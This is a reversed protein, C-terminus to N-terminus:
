DEILELSAMLLRWPKDGATFVLESHELLGAVPIEQRITWSGAAIAHRQGNVLVASAADQGEVVLKLRARTAARLRDAPLDIRRRLQGHAGVTALIGHAFHQTVRITSNAAAKGTLTFVLTRASKPPVTLVGRWGDDDNIPLAEEVLELGKLDGRPFAGLARGAALRLGAPPEVRLPMADAVAADNYCVVTLTEGDQSAICWRTADGGRTEVLSGRLPKLLRFAFEDGGNHHSEHAARAVAKDPCVDILHIIDRLMYTLAGTAKPLPEGTISPSGITTPQEPDLLGGAETNWFRLRRGREDTFATAVEYSAAVLKTDGGYHHEHIADMLPLNADLLPVYLRHWAEWGENWMNFGWGAAVQVQPNGAKLATAFVRYMRNYWLVNQEGAWYHRQTPDYAVLKADLRYTAGRFEYTDGAKAANPARSAAVYDTVGTAVNVAQLGQKWRLHEVPEAQGKIRVPDGPKVGDSEFHAPDYNVGPKCSWNLYPENWFEIHHQWGTTRTTAAYREGLARLDREWNPNTLLVAPQYRDYLCEVVHQLAAEVGSGPLLPEGTPQRVIKRDSTIGWDAIREATLPTAHVGFLGIPVQTAGNVSLHRGTVLLGAPESARDSCSTLTVIALSM